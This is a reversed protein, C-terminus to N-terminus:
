FGCLQVQVLHQTENSVRASTGGMGRDHRTRQFQRGDDTRTADGRLNFVVVIQNQIGYVILNVDIRGVVNDLLQTGNLLLNCGLFRFESLQFIQRSDRQVSMLNFNASIDTGNTVNFASFTVASFTHTQVAGFEQEHVTFRQWSFFFLKSRIFGNSFGTARLRDDNAGHVDAAIFFQRVHIERFFLVREQAPTSHTDGHITFLDQTVLNARNQAGRSETFQANHEWHDDRNFFHTCQAFLNFDVFLFQAVFTFCKVLANLNAHHHFCRSRCCNRTM